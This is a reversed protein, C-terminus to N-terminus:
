YAGRFGVTFLENLGRDSDEHSISVNKSRFNVCCCYFCSSSVVPAKPAETLGDFVLLLLLRLPSIKLTGNSLTTTALRGASGMVAVLFKRLSGLDSLRCTHLPDNITRTDQSPAAPRGVRATELRRHTSRCIPRSDWRRLRAGPASPALLGGSTRGTCYRGSVCRCRMVRRRRGRLVNTCSSPHASVPIQM